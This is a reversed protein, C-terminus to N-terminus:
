WRLVLPDVAPLTDCETLDTDRDQGVCLTFSAPLGAIARSTGAALAFKRVPDICASAVTAGPQRAACDRVLLRYHCQGSASRLCTIDAVNAITQTKSYLVDVGAVVARTVLTHNGHGDFGFLALVFYIVAILYHM